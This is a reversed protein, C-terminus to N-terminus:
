RFIIDGVRKLIRQNQQREKREIRQRAREIREEQRARVEAQKAEHRTGASVLKADLVERRAKYIPEYDREWADEAEQRIEEDTKSVGERALRRQETRVYKAIFKARAQKKAAEFKAIAEKAEALFEEDEATQAQELAKQSRQEAADVEEKAAKIDKKQAGREILIRVGERVDRKDIDLDFGGASASLPAVLPTAVFVGKMFRRIKPHNELFHAIGSGERQAAEVVAESPRALGDEVHKPPQAGRERVETPAEHGRVAYPVDFGDDSVHHEHAMDGGGTEHDEKSKPIYFEVGGEKYIIDEETHESKEAPQEEPTHM